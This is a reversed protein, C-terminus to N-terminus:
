FIAPTFPQNKRMRFNVFHDRNEILFYINTQLLYEMTQGPAKGFSHGPYVRVHPPIVSKMRQFSIFMDEASGGEQNCIGCGETFVTDGSFLSEELLYCMGGATHGPTLLCTINTNGIRITDNDNLGILRPCSFQYYDREKAAMYVTANFREVLPYVLNVHDYHSHTLLIATLTVQLESLKNCIQDLEWAPDVIFASKTFLDEVIYCYNGWQSTTRVVHVEYDSTM